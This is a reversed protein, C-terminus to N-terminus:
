GKKEIETIYRVTQEYVQHLDDNLTGPAYRSYECNSFLVLLEESLVKDVQLQDLGEKIKEKSLEAMPISLKHSFYGLLATHLADYFAEKQQADAQTKAAKLHKMAEKSAHRRLDSSLLERKEKQKRMIWKLVFFLVIVLLLYLLTWGAIKIGKVLKKLFAVEAQGSSSEESASNSNSTTANSEGEPGKEVELNLDPLQISEYSQKKPNFFDLRLGSIKFNGSKRPILVYDFTKSGSMGSQNMSIKDTVKPDFKEISEPIVLKFSDIFKLNGNGSLTIMLNSAENTKLKSRTLRADLKFNGVAGNFEQPQNEKPLASVEIKIPASKAKVLVDEATQMMGFPDWFDPKNRSVKRVICDMTFGPIEITGAHQPFLVFKKFELVFYNTNGLREKNLTLKTIPIEHSWFGELNPQKIKDVDILQQKTYLKYKVTFVQGMQVTSVDPIIRIFAEEGSNASAAPNKVVELTIPNSTFSAGGAIATGPQLIFKGEKKAGLIYSITFSQSIVGNNNSMRKSQIPGQYVEFDSFSPATFGNVNSINIEYSLEFQEGVVVKSNSVTATIKQASVQLFALGLLAVTVIINNVFSPRM